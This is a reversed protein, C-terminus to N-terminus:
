DHGLSLLWVEFSFLTKTLCLDCRPRLQTEAGSQLFHFPGVSWMGQFGSLVIGHSVDPGPAM